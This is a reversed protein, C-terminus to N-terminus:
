LCLLFRDIAEKVGNHNNDAVQEECLSLIEKRANAMAVSLGCASLVETDNYSDGVAITEQIPINLYECLKTLGVGKDIGFPSIELSTKESYVLALPYQELNDKTIEREEPNKHYLCIKDSVWHNSKCWEYIDDVMEANRYFHNRYQGIHFDDLNNFDSRSIYMKGQNMVQIMIDKDKAYDLIDKVANGDIYKSFLSKKKQYDYVCAGSVSICYRMKPFYHFFEELEVISRGSSFVIEKGANLAQNIADINEKSIQKDDGLLTGDMDTALLKYEM